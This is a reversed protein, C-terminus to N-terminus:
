KYEKVRVGPFRCKEKEGRGMKGHGKRGEKRGGKIISM